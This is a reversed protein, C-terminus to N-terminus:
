YYGGKKKLTLIEVEKLGVAKVISAKLVLIKFDVGFNSLPVISLM